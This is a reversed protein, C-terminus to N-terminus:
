FEILVRSLKGVIKAESPPCFITPYAPNESHLRLQDGDRYVRKLVAEEGILVAAIQGNEVEPQRRILLIDGHNIRANIMSDGKARILFYDGGNLWQKPIPEYGQIDEYAIVGNGCSIRGVIPLNVVESVEYMANSEAVVTGRFTPDIDSKKVQLADSITQVVGPSMLTKANLYDSIASTSYDTMEALEKQSVNNQTLIRKLNHAMEKMLQREVDSYKKRM